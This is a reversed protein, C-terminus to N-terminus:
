FWKALVADMREAADRELSLLNQTALSVIENDVPWKLGDHRAM